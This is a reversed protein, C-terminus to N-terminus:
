IEEGDPPVTFKTDRDRGTLARPRKSSTQVILRCGRRPLLVLYLTVELGPACMHLAHANSLFDWLALTVTRVSFKM